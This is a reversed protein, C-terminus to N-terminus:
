NQFNSYVSGSPLATVWFPSGGYIHVTQPCVPDPQWIPYRFIVAIGANYIEALFHHHVVCQGGFFLDLDGRIGAILQIYVPLKNLLPWLLGQILFFPKNISGISRGVKHRPCVNHRNLHQAKRCALIIGQIAGIGGAQVNLVARSIVRGKGPFVASFAGYVTFNGNYPFRAARRRDVRLFIDMGCFKKRPPFQGSAAGLSIKLMAIASAM